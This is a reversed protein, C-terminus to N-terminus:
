AEEGQEGSLPNYTIADTFAGLHLLIQHKQCFTAIDQQLGVHRMLLRQHQVISRQHLDQVEQAADPQQCEIWLRASIYLWTEVAQSLAHLADCLTYADIANYPLVLQALLANAHRESELAHLAQRASLALTPYDTQAQSWMQRLHDLSQQGDITM